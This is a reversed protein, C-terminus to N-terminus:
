GAAAALEPTTVTGIGEMEKTFRFEKSELFMLPDFDHHALVGWVKRRQMGMNGTDYIPFCLVDRMLKDLPHNKRDYSNVGMVRMCDYVVQVGTEGGFIKAMAGIAHSEGDYLDAFHAAKWCLYRAAELRMACDVLTYGVIQHYIIPDTGGATYTKSWDLVYEYAARATGTAAVGAIPGSWTFARSIALDADGIAFANEAPVRCNDFVMDNNQNVRQGMKDLPQEYQVGPTGRPVIICSSGHRGDANRDTRAVVVNIDAGELDWGGSNSPWYKRGNVVYQDGDLDATVGVGVTPDPHDFNATGGRGGPPESVNWACIFNGTPDNLAKTLWTEKQEESGYWILPMLALGNCLLICDFGPDVVGIEEAVIQFDLNSYGPGGYKKPIFGYAFGLKYAQQYAPQMMTFAKQTDPEADAAAVVPKLVEQAFERATRQLVKQEDTLTFDIPM